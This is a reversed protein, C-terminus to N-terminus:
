PGRTGTILYYGLAYAALIVRSAFDGAIIGIAMPKFRTFAAGGGARVMASKIFWGLMWSGATVQLPWVGWLLFLAPHLPWWSYRLRLVSTGVVLAFGVAVTVWFHNNPRTLSWAVGETGEPRMEFSAWQALTTEWPSRAVANTWGVNQIGYSYQLSITVLVGLVLCVVVTPMLGWVFRTPRIGEYEGIRLANAALPMMKVRPDMTAQASLIGMLILMHPGLATAGLAGVLAGSAHWWVHFSYMGTEANMRTLGLMIVGSLLVFCVALVPNLGVSILILTLGAGALVALRFAWLVSPSVPDGLRLGVARSAVSAYYHRGTYVIIAALGLYSGIKQYSEICGIMSHGSRANIGFGYLTLFAASFLLPSIGLSFSVEASVLFAFGLVIFNIRPQLIWGMMDPAPQLWTWKQGIATFNFILPVQVPIDWWPGFGNFLLIALVPCFGFWFTRRYLIAPWPREGAGHILEGALEAVPYRLRERHAWQPHVVLAMGVSAIFGLGLVPLWFGLTRTWGGWPVASFPVRQGPRLGQALGYVIQEDDVGDGDPDPDVLMAPPAYSILDREKWGPSAEQYKHPYAVIPTFHWLLGPSPVMAGMLVFGAIVAWDRGELRLGPLYRVLPNVLFMGVVLLGFVSLPIMDEAVRAQRLVYDNWWGMTALAVALLVGIIVARLRM